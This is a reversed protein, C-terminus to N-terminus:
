KKSLMDIVVSKLRKRKIIILMLAGAIVVYKLWLIRNLFMIAIGVCIEGISILLIGKADYLKQGDLLERCVKRYYMNTM